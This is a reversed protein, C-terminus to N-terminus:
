GLIDDEVSLFHTWHIRTDNLYKEVMREYNEAIGSGEVSDPSMNQRKVGEFVQVQAFYMAMRALSLAYGMRCIGTSPTLIAVSFTKPM